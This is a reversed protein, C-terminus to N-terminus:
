FIKKLNDINDINDINYSEDNTNIKKLNYNIPIKIKFEFSQSKIKSNLQLSM